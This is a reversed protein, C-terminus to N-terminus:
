PALVMRVFISIVGVVMLKMLVQGMQLLWFFNRLDVEDEAQLLLLKLSKGQLEFTVFSHRIYRELTGDTMPIEVIRKNPM